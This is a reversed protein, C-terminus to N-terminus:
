HLIQEQQLWEISEALMHCYLNLGIKNVTGSQERGLINGAGRIELDRLAIQYGSGLDAYARLAELREAAQTTMHKPRYLFYAYAQDTGRGIRGRLQHAQALGLRTADDVILTNASSIDLGNEIITTAVLVQIKKARFDDMITVLEKEKMRGHIIGIAIPCRNILIKEIKQKTMGMTDIRNHLFYIQGGRDLERTIAERILTQRHPLVFTAIPLRNPPPTELLSIDRLRAMTLQMTRPIPTASLSIIDVDGRMEKIREKQKVGFRQEEDIIALGLNKFKVDQSLLRHTGIVCDITGNEIGKLIQKQEQPPTIRSLMAVRVPLNKFRELITKFHQAALITTPSLIATQKGSIIVRLATRIALETKGFGVDGCLVRDMPRTSSLDNFIEQESRIQDPTEEFPFGSRLEQELSSDGFYPARQANNRKAYLQLLQRALKEADEKAKRKITQWMTGGLRHIHPTEFGIYPTLRDKQAIPVLLRDNEGGTSPPAYEIIFFQKSIDNATDSLGSTDSIGRLIGIGHDVHVVFSGAPLDEITRALKPRPTVTETRGAHEQIISIINGFFEILYPTETNIPWIDIIGGRVAFLGRGAVANSREYGLSLLRETLEFPKIKLDIEIILTHQQWWMNSGRAKKISETNESFWLVGRELNQPTVSVILLEKSHRLENSMISYLPLMYHSFIAIRM